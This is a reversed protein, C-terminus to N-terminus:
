KVGYVKINGAQFTSSTLFDLRTIASTGFYGAGGFQTSDVANSGNFRTASSTYTIDKFNTSNYNYIWISASNTRAGGSFDYYNLAISTASAAAAYNGVALIAGLANYLHKDATTDNNCRMTFTGQAALEFDNCEIFLHNYTADTVNIQVSSGSTTATTSLLTFGGGSSPAAWKLGTTEASDAVLTHGNTGVALRGVTNDATGVLLDGKADVTSKAIAAAANNFVTTDISSGLTRIAAAGDKVLDTDDPTDWGYNTTTAM